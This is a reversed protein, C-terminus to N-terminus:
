WDHQNEGMLICLNEHYNVILMLVHVHLNLNFISHNSYFLSNQMMNVYTNQIGHCMCFAKKNAALDM